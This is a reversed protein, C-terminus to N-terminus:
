PDLLAHLIELVSSYYGEFVYNVTLDSLDHQSFFLIRGSATEILSKVKEPDPTIKVSSTSNICEDWTTERNM